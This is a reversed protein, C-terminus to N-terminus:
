ANPKMKDNYKSPCKVLIHSAEFHGNPLMKGEVVVQEADEFNPPKLDRYIVHRVAGKQDRMDFSFENKNQDYNFQKEKIWNGVVHANSGTSAAETFDMYGGVQQGFNMVLLGGFIVLLLVGIITKAKM